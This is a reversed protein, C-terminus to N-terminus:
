DYGVVAVTLTQRDAAVSVIELFVDWVDYDVRHERGSPADLVFIAERGEAVAAMWAEVPAQQDPSPPSDFDPSALAARAREVLQAPDVRKYWTPNLRSHLFPGHVSPADGWPDPHVCFWRKSVPDSVWDAVVAFPAIDVSGGHVHFQTVNFWGFDWLKSQTEAIPRYTLKM